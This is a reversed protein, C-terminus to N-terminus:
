PGRRLQMGSDHDRRPSRATEPDKQSNPSGRSFQELEDAKERNNRAENDLQDPDGHQQNFNSKIKERMQRADERGRDPDEYLRINSTIEGKQILSNAEEILEKDPSHKGEKRRPLSFFKLSLHFQILPNTKTITAFEVNNQEAAEILKILDRKRKKPNAKARSANLHPSNLTVSDNQPDAKIYSAFPVYRKWQEDPQICLFQFTRELEKDREERIRKAEEEKKDAQQRLESVRKKLREENNEQSDGTDNEAASGSVADSFADRPDEQAGGFNSEHENAM